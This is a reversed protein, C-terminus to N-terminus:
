KLSTAGDRNWTEAAGEVFGGEEIVDAAAGPRAVRVGGGEEPFGSEGPPTRAVGIGAGDGQGAARSFFVCFM